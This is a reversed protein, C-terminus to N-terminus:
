SRTRVSWPDAGAEGGGCSERGPEAASRKSGRSGYLETATQPKALLLAATAKDHLCLEAARAPAAAPYEFARSLHPFSPFSNAISLLAALPPGCTLSVATVHQM